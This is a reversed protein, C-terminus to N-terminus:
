SRGYCELLLDDGASRTIRVHSTAEPCELRESAASAGGVCTWEVDEDGDVAFTANQGQNVVIESRSNDDVHVVGNCEERNSDLLTVGTPLRADRADDDVNATTVCGVLLVTPAILLCDRQLKRM